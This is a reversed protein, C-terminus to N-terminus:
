KYGEIRHQLKHLGVDQLDAHKYGYGKRAEYGRRHALNHGKPVRITKRKGRKIENIDRKIEGRLASSLKDDHLLERLRAQKGLRGAKSAGKFLLRGKEAVEVAKGAHAITSAAGTPDAFSAVDAAIWGAGALSPNAAFSAVDSTLFVADIIWKGDPDAYMVPNNRTYIYPNLNLPDDASGPEPDVSLFVGNAPNYYRANLYYLGTESDYRYGAYRYPNNNAM